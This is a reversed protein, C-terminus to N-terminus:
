RRDPEQLISASTGRLYQKVSATAAMLANLMTLRPGGLPM